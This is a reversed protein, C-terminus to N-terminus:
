PQRVARVFRAPTGAEVEHPPFLLPGAESVTRSEGVPVWRVLDTSAQLSYSFRPWAQPLLLGAPSLELRGIAAAPGNAAGPTVDSLLDHDLAGPGTRGSTFNRPQPGFTVSDIRTGDPAHLLLSEGGASLGFPVHVDRRRAFDTQEPEGDAWVLLFGGAPILTGPPFTFRAPQAPDDSLTWGSLDAATAAPNHLELWDEFQGDAPDALGGSGNDAAWENIRVAPWDSAGTFTLTLSTQALLTDDARLAQMTLTQTGSRLVFPLTWAQLGSWEPEVTRGNIVLTAMDIPATGSLTVPATDTTTGDTPSTVAFVGGDAGRATLETLIFARREDIWQTVSKGYAGSAVFPSTVGIGAAAYANHRETLRPTVAAGSFFSGTAERLARYYDRLFAPTQNMREVADDDVEFLPANVPDGTVGLGVDCDWTFITWRGGNPRALFSNKYNRNGFSDWFSGLDCFAFTRMWNETDVIRRLGDAYATADGPSAACADVLGLLSTWDNLTSTGRARPRFVWRYRPVHLQGDKEFRQLQSRRFPQIRVGADNCEDDNTLKYLEGGDPFHSEMLTDDPREGDHYIVGRRNGNIFFHVDRRHLSPLKMRDLFWYQLQERQNTVDRVPYDLSITDTGLAEDGPPLQFGFGVLSGLPSDQTDKNGRYFARVDYIPRSGLIVTAPFTRNARFPTATWAAITSQTLFLRVSDFPGPAAPEGIRVLAEGPPFQSAAAAADRAVIRFAALSGAPFGGLRATFVGDGPVLDGGTGDDAMEKETWTASPDLRWACRVSSVGDPDDVRASVRFPVGAQPLLPFHRVDRIRPPTASALRSNPAGPTGLARPIQLRAVTEVSGGQLRLCFEPHGAQWRARARLTVVTGATTPVATSLATRLRNPNGDGQGQAVLQLLGNRWTSDFHTGEATWGSLNSAFSPNTVLNAGGNIRAEVDDVECRGANLLFLQAQPAPNLATATNGHAPTATIEVTTWPAKGSEDSDAWSGPDGGPADPHIKELSSGGGDAWRRERTRDEYRVSDVPVFGAPAPAALTLSEGGDDLTGTFQGPAVRAAAAPHDALFRERNGSVVLHAGAALQVGAPFTYDVGETFRWGSLDVPQASRNCIELWEAPPEGDIVEPPHFFIENIVVPPQGAATLLAEPALRRHWAGSDRRLWTGPTSVGSEASDIVRRGDPAVLHVRAGGPPLPFPPTLLLTGNPELITAAPMAPHTTLASDAALRCGGLDIRFPSDNKLEVRSEAATDAVAFRRIGVHDLLSDPSSEAAGPSGGPHRSPEWADPSREGQSPRALVLSHGTGDAARPWRGGDDYPVELVVAGSPKRLRVTGGANNLSGTWPGLVATLGTATQLAAPDAAVVRYGLPPLVTGPPFEHSIEGTLRWGSLDESWPATNHLEVFELDPGSADGAPHYHIESIVVGTRRSSVGLPEDHRQRRTPHIVQLVASSTASGQANSATVSYNGGDGVAADPLELVPGTVNTLPAGDKTWTYSLPGGSATVHLTVSDGAWVTRPTLGGVIVPPSPVGPSTTLSFNDFKSQSASEGILGARGATLTGDNFTGSYVTMGTAADTVTVTFQGTAAAGDVRLEYWRNRAFRPSADDVLILNTEVGAARRKVKLDAPDGGGTGDNIQLAHFNANDAWGFVLGAWVTDAAMFVQVRLSINEGTAWSLPDATCIALTGAPVDIRQGGNGGAEHLFDANSTGFARTTWSPSADLGGSGTDFTDAFTGATAPAASILCAALAAFRQRHFPYPAQQMPHRDITGPAGPFTSRRFLGAPRVAISGM